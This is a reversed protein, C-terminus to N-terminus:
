ALLPRHELALARIARSSTHMDPTTNEPLGMIADFYILRNRDVDRRTIINDFPICSIDLRELSERDMSRRERHDMNFSLSPSSAPVDVISSNTRVSSTPSSALDRSIEMTPHKVLPEGPWLWKTLKKPLLIPGKFQKIFQIEEPIMCEDGTYREFEDKISAFRWHLLKRLCAIALGSVFAGDLCHIYLPLNDANILTEVISAMTEPTITVSEKYKKVKFYITKIGYHSCFDLLDETPKEPTLSVISKLNLRALFRLNKLTPYAGRYISQGSTVEVMCYRFPPVIPESLAEGIMMLETESLQGLWSIWQPSHPLPTFNQPHSRRM